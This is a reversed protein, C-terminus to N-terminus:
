KCLAHLDCFQAALDQLIFPIFLLGTECPCSYKKGTEFYRFFDFLVTLVDLAFM